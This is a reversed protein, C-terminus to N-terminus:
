TTRITLYGWIFAAEDTEIEALHNFNPSIVWNPKGVNDTAAIRSEINSAEPFEAYMRDTLRRATSVIGAATGDHHAALAALRMGNRDRVDRVVINRIDQTLRSSMATVPASQQFLKAPHRTLGVSRINKAKRM